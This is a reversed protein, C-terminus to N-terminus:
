PTAKTIASNAPTAAPKFRFPQRMKSAVRKGGRVGPEFKWQRLADLAPKNFAPDPSREIRMSGVRGDPEVVFIVIVVGEVRQNRLESPYLPEVTVLARPKQDLDGLSFADEKDEQISGGAIGSGGIRGGTAFSLADAFDPSGGAGSLAAEIAGLSAAELAPADNSPMTEMNRIIEEADPAEEPPADEPQLEEQEEQQEEKAKEAETESLLEVKALSGKDEQDSNFILGGFLIFAVHLLVALIVGIIPGLRM